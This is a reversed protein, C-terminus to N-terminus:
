VTRVSGHEEDGPAKRLCRLQSIYCFLGPLPWAPRTGQKGSAVSDMGVGGSRLELSLHSRSVDLVHWECAGGPASGPCAVPHPPRGAWDLVSGTWAWSMQLDEGQGM